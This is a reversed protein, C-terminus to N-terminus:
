YDRIHINQKGQNIFPCYKIAVCFRFANAKWLTNEVFDTLAFYYSIEPVLRLTNDQNMPLEYSIGMFIGMQFPVVNSDSTFENRTRRYTDNGNSDLFTGVGAPKVITEVQSYEKTIFTGFRMGAFVGFNSIPNYQLYPELGINMFTADVKHEFAGATPNGNVIITTPEEKLLIGNLSIIGLRAGIWLNDGFILNEYLIGGNFGFGSGDEFRPCCNPLGPLRQFNATHMNYNGGFFIGFKQTSFDQSSLSFFNILLLIIISAKKM